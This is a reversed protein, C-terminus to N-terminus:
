ESKIQEGTKGYRRERSTYSKIAELFNEKKFDPWMVDTFYLESYAIQWLLFNSIRQEGSTRILLDVNPINHTYLNQEIIEPTIESVDLEGRKVKEAIKKTATIIEMQSGYNLAVTLTAKTNNKTLQVANELSKLVASPMKDMEGIVMLRINKQHLENIEANITNALLKMLFAVELKPRNWNETSFAFLTLYPIGLDGCVEIAKRVSEVGEQHGFTRDFGKKKAWRGNGDMIIAIHQPLTDSNITDTLPPNM